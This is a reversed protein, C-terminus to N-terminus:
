NLLISVTAQHVCIAPLATGTCTMFTYQFTSAYSWDNKAEASSPPSHNVECGALKVELFAGRYGNPLGWLREPLKPSFLFISGTGLISGHDRRRRARLRNAM